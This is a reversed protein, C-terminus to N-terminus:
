GTFECRCVIRAHQNEGKEFINDSSKSNMTLEM